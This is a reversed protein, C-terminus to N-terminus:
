EAKFKEVDNAARRKIERKEEESMLWWGNKVREIFDDDALDSHSAAENQEAIDEDTIINDSGIEQQMHGLMDPLPDRGEDVARQVNRLNRVFFEIAESM